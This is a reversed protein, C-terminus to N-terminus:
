LFVRPAVSSALADDDGQTEAGKFWGRVKGLNRLFTKSFAMKPNPVIEEDSSYSFEKTVPPPVWNLNQDDKSHATLTGCMVVDNAITNSDKPIVNSSHLDSGMEDVLTPLTSNQEQEAALAM